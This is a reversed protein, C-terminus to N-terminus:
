VLFYNISVLFPALIASSFCFFSGITAESAALSMVFTLLFFSSVFIKSQFKMTRSFLFTLVIMAFGVLYWKQHPFPWLLRNNPNQCSTPGNEKPYTTTATEEQYVTGLIVIYYLIGFCLPIADLSRIKKKQIRLALLYGVGVAFVHSPLSYKAIMTGIKNLQVNDTDIGKWILAEALQMQTYFFILVGITMQNTCMAFVSSVIGICYSLISTRFSYCM